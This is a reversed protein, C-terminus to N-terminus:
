PRRGVVKIRRQETTAKASNNCVKGSTATATPDLAGSAGGTALRRRRGTREDHGTYTPGWARGRDWGALCRSIFVYGRAGGAPQSTSQGGRGKYCPMARVCRVRVSSWRWCSRSRIALYRWRSSWIRSWTLQESRCWGSRRRPRRRVRSLWESTGLDFEVVVAVGGEEM